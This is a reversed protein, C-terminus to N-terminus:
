RKYKSATKKLNMLSVFPSDDVTEPEYERPESKTKESVWTVYMTYGQLDGVVFGGNELQRKLYNYALTVDFAPQGFVFHPVTLVVHRNGTEVTHKIKRAFTGYIEKYIAKRIKKKDNEVARIESVRLM